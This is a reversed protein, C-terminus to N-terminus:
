TIPNCSVYIIREVGSNDIAEVVKHSSTRSKTPDVIILDAKDNRTVFDKCSGLIPEVNTINNIKLMKKADEVNAPPNIEVSFIKKPM